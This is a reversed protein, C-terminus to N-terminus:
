SRGRLADLGAAALPAPTDGVRAFGDGRTDGRLHRQHIGEAIVAIKFYALALHFGLDALDRGSAAVYREVLADRTPMRPSASAASGGLVAAFAPHAYALHLALDALPDGLTAMEWDVVARIRAPDDPDVIANDVRFDGHVISAGSESPCAVVLREHLAEIDPLDRTRVREWQGYWRRVQRGLYGDPRGLDALGVEASPVAHLAALTDVLALGCRRVDEDSLSALDDESRLVSGPVFAVVACPVGIVDSDVLAVPAAVPVGHGHLAAVVRYERGMDHASPTLTGLPPRRLIWTSRGDTLKYTLNSRGGSVLEATLQGAFGPVHAAFYGSLAALDLGEVETATM